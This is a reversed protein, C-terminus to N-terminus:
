VDEPTLDPRLRVFVPDRFTGNGTLQSYRVECFLRPEVWTTEADDAPKETVPREVAPLKVLQTHISTLLKGDFGTGVKGRYLLEGDDYYGIHLAGFLGKRDGKGETFGLIVCDDSQKVKVKLWARSRRGPYYRAGPEKAVIGELGMSKVAEFLAHGDELVESVRYGTDRRVSDQLWTRRRELPDGVLARGDLYLCDFLYCHAPHKEAARRISVEGSRQIRNVVQRFDPRGDEDLCVIEGDFVGSTNRFAEEAIILEPFKATVDRHNRSRITIEGEDLVIMARIGDWKLEYLYDGDPVEPVREAFMFDIRDHLWDIQPNDIRELLWQRNGTEYIRYEANLEPSSLRFYFGDKKEKTKEYKGRSYIWMPGAGYEGKPIVGEFNLYELPHDETAVALRKLGPHPPMGRPVAWSRLTGNEELRLDYHLHSAHHRHVVFANGEGLTELPEPEPTKGFKRKRAYDSLQEPTKHRDSPGKRTKRPPAKRRTHLDGAYAGIAEWADGEALVHDVVNGINFEGPSRLTLLRDWSLPMSVTAGPAGRLSYPSVISQGGRNRYIDVLVRGKRAEKKIQLTTQSNARVFPEALDKAAEFAEGFSWKPRIPIVVHIGKRGTTKAFPHYGFKECHLRLSEAIALLDEFPYDEPPDLDLVFYDPKDHHPARSHLQHLEICALNALWVLTAEETAVIYDLKKEDDGLAVFQVWEPAWDPRNKQYFTEGDIGDPYRVLTLARGKMHRLITPAIRLYYQVIEAKVVGDNAYLVKKLNSLEVQRKGIRALQSTRAM